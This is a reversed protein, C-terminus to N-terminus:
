ARLRVMNSNFYRVFRVNFIRVCSEWDYWTPISIFGRKPAYGHPRVRLRVMNSNFHGLFAPKQRKPACREITGHQFQFACRRHRQVTNGCQEWDYWTPISIKREGLPTAHQRTEWDYWTPISINYKRSWGTQFCSREITGHQFQFTRVTSRFHPKSLGRLRVMNSNFNRKFCQLWGMISWEWDYWTPISIKKSPKFRVETRAEWDYWTPISILLVCKIQMDWLREITGHQFQFSLAKLSIDRATEEWDYWTPISIEGVGAQYSPLFDRLRVM